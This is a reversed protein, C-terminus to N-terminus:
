QDAGQVLLLWDGNGGSNQGPTTLHTTLPVSHRATTVPDVWFATADPVLRRLDLTITRSTPVYVLATRGDPTRAATVDDSALVDRFADDSVREGRGGTVIPDRDDPVLDWWPLGTMFERLSSVQRIAESDLRNQWGPLFEWDDTGYFEGPSGSTIAWLVQRRLAEPTTPPTEEQNNEREYNGESFLSPITPESRYAALVPEYTPHYTYVFNWDVRTAWFPNQTSWSRRSHLQISFPRKDGVERIGQLASAMCRDVDSGGALNDTAPYYDGGSVWVINPLDAFYAAVRAGYERCADQSEPIFSYGITWGDIPYLFLTIGHHAAMSLYDHARQWYPENWSLVNEDLFPLVGDYTAGEGSPGGNGLSGVLSVIAANFGQAARRSLYLEVDHRSVDTMLSWPSDGSVLIPTGHQDIFYRGSDSVQTVFRATAPPDAAPPATLPESVAAVRGEDPIAIGQGNYDPFILGRRQAAYGLLGGLVLISAVFSFAWRRSVIHTTLTPRQRM